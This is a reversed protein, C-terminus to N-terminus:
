TEEGQRKFTRAALSLSIVTLSSIPMLIAAVLPHILGLAALSVSFTNYLVSFALSRHIVRVTSRGADIVDRVGALGPNGLYVGAAALSAEAGGHVAIGVSAAALAAADNVGDGVMVVPQGADARQAIANRVAALKEEPLLGGRADAIGLQRAMRAVIEPHDGSLIALEWGQTRLADLTGRADPRLGDGVAAIACLERGESTQRAIFVPSAGEGLCRSVAGAWTPALSAQHPAVFDRTGIWYRTGRVVGSIGGRVDQRIDSATPLRKDAPLQALARAVPHTAHAEISAVALRTEDEGHWFRVVPRGHTLTGTKDLFLIGPRALRELTDGGKILIGRRAARGIAVTVALPTALGLACPCAIILV